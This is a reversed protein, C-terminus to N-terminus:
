HIRTIELWNTSSPIIYGSGGSEELTKITITDGVSLRVVTCLNISQVNATARATTGYDQFNASILVDNKYVAAKMWTLTASSQISIDATVLYVGSVKATFTAGLQENNTDYDETDWLVLAPTSTSTITQGGGSLRTRVLTMGGINGPTLTAVSFDQTASGNFVTTNGDLTKNYLTVENDLTVAGVGGSPIVNVQAVAASVCLLFAILLALTQRM